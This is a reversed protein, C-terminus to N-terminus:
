SGRPSCTADFARLRACVLEHRARAAEIEADDRLWRYRVYLGRHDSAADGIAVAEEPALDLSALV